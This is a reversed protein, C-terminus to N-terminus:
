LVDDMVYWSLKTAEILCALRKRCVEPTERIDCRYQFTQVHTIVLNKHSLIGPIISPQNMSTFPSAHLYAWIYICINQCTSIDFGRCVSANVCQCTSILTLDKLMGVNWFTQNNVERALM